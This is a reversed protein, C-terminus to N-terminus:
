PSTVQITFPGNSGGGTYFSDVIIYYTGSQSIAYSFTEGQGFGNSDAGTLCTVPVADCISSTGPGILSISPDLTAYVNSLTVTISQGSGLVLSYAVDGGGQTYGGNCTELGSDYNNTAGTTTGVATTPLILPIATQCSDNTPPPPPPDFGDRFIDEDAFAPTTWSLAAMAAIVARLLLTDNM